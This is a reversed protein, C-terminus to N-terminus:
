PKEIGRGLGGDSGPKDDPAQDSAPHEGAQQEGAQQEGAQQEGAQQEGAQQEGAQQEVTGLAHALRSQASGPRLPKQQSDHPAWGTLTVVEFTARVRGDPRAHREQYIEAVRRLTDRRLARRSREILVNAWGLARLDRMLHLASEYGVELVDGDAVPLAFGARQLLGGLERVDAFPIVRPSAGGTTEAEALAFSERLEHLTLGGLLCAMMLGDPKLAHRIQLLAGPLDNVTQLSLCSVVLDLSGPRMPLFEEDALVRAGDLGSLLRPSVDMAVLIDRGIGAARLRRTLSGSAAGLDLAVPFERRIFSLRELIDDAAHRHLFDNAAIEAARRDRRARFLERDFIRLGTNASTM